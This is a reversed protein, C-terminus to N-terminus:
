KMEQIKEYTSESVEIIHGNYEVLYATVEGTEIDKQLDPILESLDEFAIDEGNIDKFSRM